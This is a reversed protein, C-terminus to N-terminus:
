RPKDKIQLVNFLVETSSDDDFNANEDDSSNSVVPLFSASAEDNWTKQRIREVHRAKYLVHSVVGGLCLLLGFFNVLTMKDGTWEYALVLTCIEQSCLFESILIITLGKLPM